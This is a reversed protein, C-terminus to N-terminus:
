ITRIELVPLGRRRAEAGFQDTYDDKGRSVGDWLLLAGVPEDRERGLAIAQDLIAANTASYPEKDNGTDIVVLDGNAEVEDLITDYMKGWAGPRDVVSSERFKARAFPLVIRRRLGLKGAEALGILDAGCAASSVVATAGHEKLLVGVAAGVKDINQLPFRPRSADIADVRRGALAIIM